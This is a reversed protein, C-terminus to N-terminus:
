DVGYKKLADVQGESYASSNERTGQRMRNGTQSVGSGMNGLENQIAIGTMVEGMPGAGGVPVGGGGRPRNAVVGGSAGGFLEAPHLLTGDEPHFIFDEGRSTKPVADLYGYTVLADLSPPYYG